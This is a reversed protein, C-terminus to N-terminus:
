AVPKRRTAGLGALGLGLLVATGPEPTAAAVNFASLYFGEGGQIARFEFRTGTADIGMADLDVMYGADIDAVVVDNIILTFDAGDTFSNGHSSNYNTLSYITVEENFDFVLSQTGLASHIVNDPNTTNNEDILAGGDDLFLAGLGGNAPALDAMVLSNDSATVDFAIGGKSYTLAPDGFIDGGAESCGAFGQPCDHINAMSTTAFRFNVAHANGAAVFVCLGLVAVISRKM